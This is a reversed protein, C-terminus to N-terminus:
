VRRKYQSHDFEVIWETGRTSKVTASGHLQQEAIGYILRMGMSDSSRTDLDDPLGVGNDSVKLLIKGAKSKKLVIKIVGKRQDPFAHTLVNTLMENLLLGCPIAIDILVQFPEVELKLEHKRGKGTSSSMLNAALEEVYEKLNIQSLDQSQYLKQHVLSMAKIRHIMDENNKLLQPDKIKQSQLALLSSIVQMNNKTRHYLENLLINKEKLASKIDEESQKKETIDHSFNLTAPKGDWEVFVSRISLWKIKGSKNIIRFEYHDPADNRSIRRLHNELVLNRDDPHILDTFPISLLEEDSFGTIRTVMPNVFKLQGEQAIYIAENANEILQRYEEESNKLRRQTEKEATVDRASGVIGIMNGEDDILPSKHVKLFIFKGKVNGYEDFSGPKKTDIIVQDSDQCIEGFTHWEHNEPHQERERAAFWMDTRGIPDDVTEANLLNSCLAKNAFIYKKELDKAWLMDTMNDSVARQLRSIAKYKQESEQLKKNANVRKTIDRIISVIMQLNDNTIVPSFSHNIWRVTNNKTIIRYEIDSGTKGKLAEFHTKKVRDLDDPHVIWPQRGLLEEPEYGLVKSCAPSLYAITGDPQTLMIVEQSYEVIYRFKQESLSLAKEAQKAESIDSFIAVM